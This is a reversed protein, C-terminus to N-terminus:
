NLGATHFIEPTPSQPITLSEVLSATPTVNTVQIRQQHCTVQRASAISDNALTFSDTVRTVSGSSQSRPLQKALKISDNTYM